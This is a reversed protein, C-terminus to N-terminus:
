SVTLTSGNWTILGYNSPIPAVVVDQEMLLGEVPLRQESASPTVSYSGTYHEAAIPRIPAAVGITVAQPENLGLDYAASDVSVSMPITADIRVTM